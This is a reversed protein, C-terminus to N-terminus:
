QCTGHHNQEGLIEQQKTFNIRKRRSKKNLLLEALRYDTHYHHSQLLKISSRWEEQKLEM